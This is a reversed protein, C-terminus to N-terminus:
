PGRLVAANPLRYFPISPPLHPSDHHCHYTFRTNLFSHYSSLVISECVTSRRRYVSSQFDWGETSVRPTCAALWRQLFLSVATTPRSLNGRGHVGRRRQIGHGTRAQRPRRSLGERQSRRGGGPRCRYGRWHMRHSARNSSRQRRATCACVGCRFRPLAATWTQLAHKICCSRTKRAWYATTM